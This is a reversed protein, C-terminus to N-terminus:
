HADPQEQRQLLVSSDLRCGWAARCQCHHVCTSSHDDIPGLPSELCHRDIHDSCRDVTHPSDHQSLMPQQSVPVFATTTITDRTLRRNHNINSRSAPTATTLHMSRHISSAKRHPEARRHRSADVARSRVVTTSSQTSLSDRSTVTLTSWVVTWLARVTARCLGVQRICSGRGGVVRRINRNINIYGELEGTVPVSFPVHPVMPLRIM